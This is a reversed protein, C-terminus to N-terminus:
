QQGWDHQLRPSEPGRQTCRRLGEFTLSMYLEDAPPLCVVVYKAAVTREVGDKEATVRVCYADPDSARESDVEVSRVETGYDIPFGGTRRIEGIIIDNLRAQNLIVHPQHSLSTEKDPAFHSRRITGDQNSVWFAVELVHYSERLLDEAINFSDFLEVTRTQVGDAQGVELPGNRKELVRYDIGYRSLWLAACLGASGSGCILVDVQEVM